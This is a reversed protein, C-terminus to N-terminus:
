NRNIYLYGSYSENGPNVESTFTLIYFYTGSPLERDKQLTARGESLGYFLNNGQGYSDIQYVQVGWRNFIKVNNDPYNEIGQIRFYDNLGDGNPTMGNFIQFDSGGGTYECFTSVNVSTIDNEEYSNDDSNDFVSDTTDILDATVVAQNDVFVGDIDEQTPNYTATYTWEEGSQLIGDETETTNILGTITGGLLDDNLVINELEVTGSNIVTFTYNISDDCGDIDTDIGEGTKILAIGFLPTGDGGGDGPCADNPVETRTPTNEFNSDDDSLDFVIFNSDVLEASIIAQNIVFGNDIDEQTIPYIDTYLWVEGVQLIGNEAISESDPGPIEEQGFLVEDILSVNDLDSGGINTVIFTYRISEICGDQDIDVLEAEKILGINGGDTCADNPVATRTPEDEFLSDDDSLDSVGIETDVIEGNVEAQNVVAANDIDEQTISHIAEYTWTEGVSLIGDNNTDTGDIPGSVEGGLLEDELTIEDIDVGGTNTLTFTYLISEICGDGDIDVAQGVKILGIEASGDTCADNPVATRTPEDEFLSDDDSLDSVGIETDVIEGNVEAQNVVAANDIDEQTIAYIAEYTWTEGVSLIGDNNTDTGDIPGSVEGGLLEDELTIEDIDVGGTNTLTFTYLISEICGDGDIDVAQGVKILGIDPVSCSSLDIVTPDDELVSNDDSLDIAMQNLGQIDASVTAQNEFFGNNLDELTINYVAVYTWAEDVDLFGDDNDDGGSPGAIDGGLLPDNLVVNELINVGQNTVTFEYLIINCGPGAEIDELAAGTKVVAIDDKSPCSPLTVVTPDNELVSDDDSLDLVLANPDGQINATVVAQNVVEENFKDQITTAYPVTYVWTEGVELLGNVIIDENDPVGLDGGLLPDNLVVNELVNGGENTVTFQYLILNCGAMGSDISELPNGTKIVAIETSLPCSPLLVITSDNDSVIQDPQGVVNASVSTMTEVQDDIKEQPTTVHAANYTWVEGVELINDPNMSETPGTIIGDLLNDSVVVNELDDTGTNTVTIEYLVLNCGPNGELADLPNGNVNISIDPVFPIYGLANTEAKGVLINNPHNITEALVMYAILLTFIPILSEKILKKLSNPLTTNNM